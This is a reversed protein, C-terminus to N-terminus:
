APRGLVARRRRLALPFLALLALLSAPGTGGSCGEAGGGGGGGNACAPHVAYEPVDVYLDCIGDVDDEELTRAGRPDSGASGYSAFMTASADDSHDLGFFHGIEHTVASLLDVSQNLPGEDDTTFTFFADNIAIDADIIEGTEPNHAIFTLAIQTSTANQQALWKDRNRIFVVVNDPEDCISTPTTIGTASTEGVLDVQPVKCGPLDLWSDFAAGILDYADDWAIEEPETTAVRVTVETRFWRMPEGSDRARYWEYAAAPPAALPAVVLFALAALAARAPGAPLSLTM